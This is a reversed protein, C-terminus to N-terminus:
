KPDHPMTGPYPIPLQKFPLYLPHQPEGTQNIKLCHTKVDKLMARVHESRGMHVGHNGWACIVLDAQNANSWVYWDNNPGVPDDVKKMDEPDTARYSFINTIHVSGYKWLKAFRICKAITPDEVNEDATSPNLMLWNLRPFTPEWIRWLTYRYKRDPSFHAGKEVFPNDVM